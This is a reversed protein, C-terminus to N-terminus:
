WSELESQLEEISVFEGRDCEADAALLEKNREEVRKAIAWPPPPMAMIEEDTLAKEDAIVEPQYTQFLAEVLKSLLIQMDENAQEIRLHLLDKRQTADM